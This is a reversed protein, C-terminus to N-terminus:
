NRGINFNHFSKKKNCVGTQLSIWEGFTNDWEEPEFKVFGSWHYFTLESFYVQGDVEYLDVRLHKVGKSLKEAIRIMEDFSKPKVPPVTSYQHGNRIKLHNFKMDYFDFKTEDVGKQRDSAIFLAKAIGDFTFIKYDMLYKNSKDKIYKEAIIRPKVNKYPWERGLLYYDRKLCTNIKKKANDIDFNKKDNCIVVGGSDHTCKLVFQNPLLDFEIDDFNDWVGITPIIYEEGIIGAVFKKAEYKDVMSTYIPNRDYIKLWQLKENFSKPNKLNLKRGMMTRYKCKLFLKDPFLYSFIGWRSSSIIRWPEKVARIISMLNTIECM